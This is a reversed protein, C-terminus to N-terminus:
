KKEAENISLCSSFYTNFQTQSKYIMHIRQKATQTEKQIGIIEEEEASGNEINSLQDVQEGVRVIGQENEKQETRKRLCFFTVISAGAVLCLIGGFVSLIVGTIDPANAASTTMTITNTIRASPNFSPNNTPDTSPNSSPNSTPNFSPNNTPDNSPASQYQWNNSEQYSEQHGIFEHNSM